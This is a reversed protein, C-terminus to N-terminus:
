DNPGGIDVGDPQHQVRWLDQAVQYVLQADKLEAIPEEDEPATRDLHDLLSPELVPDPLACLARYTRRAAVSIQDFATLFLRDDSHATTLDVLKEVSIDGAAIIGAARLLKGPFGGFAEALERNVEPPLSRANQLLEVARATELPPIDIVQADSWHLDKTTLVICRGRAGDPWFTEIQKKNLPEDIVVLTQLDALLSRYHKELGGREAAIRSVGLRELASILEAEVGHRRPELHLVGHPLRDRCRCAAVGVLASKGTGKRGKFILPGPNPLAMWEMLLDLQDFRNTWYHPDHDLDRPAPFRQHVNITGQFLQGGDGHIENRFSPGESM